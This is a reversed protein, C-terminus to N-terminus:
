NTGALSLPSLDEPYSRCAHKRERLEEKNKRKLCKGVKLSRDITNKSGTRLIMERFLRLAKTGEKKSAFTVLKVISGERYLKQLESKSTSLHGGNRLLTDSLFTDIIDRIDDVFM